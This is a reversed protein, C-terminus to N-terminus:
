PKMKKWGSYDHVAYGGFGPEGNLLSALRNLQAELERRSHRYFTVHDGETSPNTEVGVVVHKGLKEAESLRSRVIGAIGGSGGAQDRYSMLTIDDLQELMWASLPRKVGKVTSIQDLWFPLDAGASLGAEKAAVTYLSIANMWDDVLATRGTKWQPLLYPEMDLHLGAFRENEASSGNFHRVWRVWDRLPGWGEPLAWGPEGGLAYVSIGREKAERNFSRYQAEPIGPDIQVYLTNLGRNQSFRLVQEPESVILEADWLWTAKVLPSRGEGM